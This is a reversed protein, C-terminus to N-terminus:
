RRRSPTLRVSGDPGDYEVRLGRPRGDRLAADGGALADRGVLVIARDDRADLSGLAYVGRKLMPVRVGGLELEVEYKGASRGDGGIGRVRKRGVRTLGLERAVRPAVFTNTGGTDVEAIGRVVRGPRGPVRVAVPVLARTAPRRQAVEEDVARDVDRRRV